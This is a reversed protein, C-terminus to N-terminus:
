LKRAAEHAAPAEACPQSSPRQQQRQQQQQENTAAAVLLAALGIILEQAEKIDETSVHYIDYLAGLLDLTKDDTVAIGISGDMHEIHTWITEDLPLVIESESM